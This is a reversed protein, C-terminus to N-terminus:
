QQVEVDDAHLPGMVQRWPGSLLDYHAQTLGHQGILDRVSLASAAASAADRAADRAAASAADWAGDWAADWAAYWAAARAGSSAADWAADRAANRAADRAAYWAADRAADWAAALDEIQQPTAGSIARVQAIIEQWQPGFVEALEADTITTAALYDIVEDATRGNTDNWTEARNRRRFVARAIYSDGPVPSCLRLAGTLCVHGDGDQEAGQTWGHGRIYEAALSPLTALTNITMSNGGPCYTPNTDHTTIYDGILEHLQVLDDATLAANAWRWTDGTGEDRPVSEIVELRHLAKENHSALSIGAQGTGFSFRKPTDPM